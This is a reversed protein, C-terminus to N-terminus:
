DESGCIFATAWTSECIMGPTIFNTSAKAVWFSWCRQMRLLVSSVRGVLAMSGEWGVAHNQHFEFKERDKMARRQAQAFPAQSFANRWHVFLLLLKRVLDWHWPLCTEAVFHALTNRRSELAVSYSCILDMELLVLWLGFARRYTLVRWDGAIFSCLWM